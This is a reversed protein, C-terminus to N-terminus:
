LDHGVKRCSVFPLHEGCYGALVQKSRVGLINFTTACAPERKSIWRSASWPSFNPNARGVLWRRSRTTRQWGADERIYCPPLPFHFTSTPSYTSRHMDLTQEGSDARTVKAVQYKPCDNSIPLALGAVIDFARQGQRTCKPAAM